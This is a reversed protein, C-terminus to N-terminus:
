MGMKKLGHQWPLIEIGNVKKSSGDITFVFCTVGEHGVSGKLAILSKLDSSGINDTAKVEILYRHDEFDVVFDVETGDHTRFYRIEIEKDQSKASALLQNYILNEFLLGKRDESAKFNGLLGNIVGTDFFYIKPHKITKKFGKCAYSFCRKAILTDELIEIYRDASPRQIRAKESLKSLDLIHGSYPTIVKLFRSFGEINRSLAEAQVEEKLYIASYSRLTKMKQSRDNECIIGPLSGFEMLSVTDVDYDLEAATIPGLEYSHLRGPLLNAKGRKLKRASSGSLLFKPSKAGGEDIISQVTNLLSPLRQIEDILVVKPNVSAIREELESPNSSFEAFASERALNIKLEPKLESLLTSKGVQRPGLLLISKKSKKLIPLLKRSIM